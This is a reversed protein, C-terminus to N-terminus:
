QYITFRTPNANTGSGANLVGFQMSEEVNGSIVTPNNIRYITPLFAEATLSNTSARVVDYKEGRQATNVFDMATTFQTQGLDVYRTGTQQGFVTYALLKFFNTPANQGSLALASGQGFTSVTGIGAASLYGINQALLPASSLVSYQEGTALPGAYDWINAVVFNAPTVGDALTPIAPVYMINGGGRVIASEKNNLQVTATGSFQGLAWLSAGANSGDYINMHEIIGNQNTITINNVDLLPKIQWAAGTTYDDGSGDPNFVPRNSTDLVARLTVPDLEPNPGFQGVGPTGVVAKGNPNSATGNIFGAGLGFFGQRDTHFIADSGNLALTFNISAGPVHAVNGVQFNGGSLNADGINFQAARQLSITVTTTLSTMDAEVGVSATGMVNLKANKNMWIQGNGYIKVRNTESAAPDEYRTPTADSIGEFVLQSDDNFYLVVGGALNSADPFRFGAGAEVVVKVKGGFAIQQQQAGQGFSTLDVIVGSKIRFEREVPSTITMRQVKDGSAFTTTAMFPLSDVVIVDDNLDVTCDGLPAITVYDNGLINWALSSQGNWKNSGLGFRGGYEAFIVAHEGEGAFRGPRTPTLSTFERVRAVTPQQGDGSIGLYFPDNLTAGSVHFQQVDSGSGVYAIYTPPTIPNTIAGLEDPGSFQGISMDRYSWAFTMEESAPLRVFGKTEPNSDIMAANLGYPQIGYGDGFTVQDSPLDVNGGFWTIRNLGEYDYDNWIATAVTANILSTNTIPASGTYVTGDANRVDVPHKSITMQGGFNVFVNGSDADNKVPIVAGQSRSDYGDFGILNGEIVLASQPCPLTESLADLKFLNGYDNNGLVEGNYPYIRDDATPFIPTTDGVKPENIDPATTAWGLFAATQAQSRGAPLGFWVYHSSRQREYSDVPIISPFENGNRLVLSVTSTADLEEQPMNRKFVNLFASQSVYNSSGSSNLGLDSGLMLLRGHGTIATDLDQGHDYFRIVSLNSGQADANAPDDMTVFRVGSACLSEHLQLESNFLRFEPYRYRDPDAATPDTVSPQTYNKSFYLREGGTVGPESTAPLGTIKKTADTHAYLTNFLSIKNNVFLGPSNYRPYTTDDDDGLLLPRSIYATAYDTMSIQDLINIERGTYDTLVSSLIMTGNKADTGYESSYNRGLSANSITTVSLPGEVDIVHEGEGSKTHENGALQYGDYSSKELVGDDISGCALAMNFDVAANGLTLDVSSPDTPDNVWFNYIYGYLSSSANKFLAQAHGRLLIQPHTALTPDFLGQYDGPNIFPDAATFLSRGENPPYFLSPDLGDVILASPNRKKILNAPYDIAALYDVDNAAGGTYDLFVSDYVDLIGNVGLVFGTRVNKGPQRSYAWFYGANTHKSYFDWYPDSAYKGLNQCDNIVLLGRRDAQGPAFPKSAHAYALDDVVRLSANVGAPKAYDVIRTDAADFSQVYHGGVVIAGDNFPFKQTIKLFNPDDPTLGDLWGTLYAGKIFLVLRGSGTNYPDFGVSAYGGPELIDDEGSPIMGVYNDSVYTLISNPGVYVMSRLDGPTRTFLVKNRGADVHAKPQDMTVLVKAGGANASYQGDGPVIMGTAPDLEAPATEDMQGDFRVSTGDALVFVTQGRGKFTVYLDEFDETTGPNIKDTIGRFTVDNKVNVTITRDEAANFIIQAHGSGAPAGEPALSQRYPELTVTTTINITMDAATATLTVDGDIKLPCLLLSDQLRDLTGYINLTNLAPNSTAHAAFSGNSEAADGTVIDGGLYAGLTTAYATVGSSEDVDDGVPAWDYAHVMGWQM